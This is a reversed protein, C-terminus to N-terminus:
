VKRIRKLDAHQQHWDNMVRHYHQQAQVLFVQRDIEIPNEYVDELYLVETPWTSVFALLSPNLLFLGNNYTFHLETLIKEKLIKKNVQYDTSVRIQDVINSLPTSM